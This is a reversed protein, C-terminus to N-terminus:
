KDQMDKSVFTKAAAEIKDGGAAKLNDTWQESLKDKARLRDAQAEMAQDAESASVSRYGNAEAYEHMARKDEFYRGFAQSYHGRSNHVGNAHLGKGMIAFSPPVYIQEILNGCGESNEEETKPNFQMPRGYYDTQGCIMEELDDFSCLVEWERQCKKCGVKYFGM